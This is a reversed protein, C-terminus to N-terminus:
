LLCSRLVNKTQIKRTKKECFVVLPVESKEDKGFLKAVFLLHFFKVHVRDEDSGSEFFYLPSFIQEFDFNGTDDILVGGHRFSSPHHNEFSILTVSHQDEFYGTDINVQVAGAILLFKNPLYFRDKCVLLREKEYDIIEVFIQSGSLNLKQIM